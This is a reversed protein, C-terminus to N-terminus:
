RGQCRGDICADFGHSPYYYSGVFCMENTASEGFKVDNATPNNWDCQYSLGNTGDFTLVPDLTKLEPSGWSKEDLLQHSTDGPGSSAWVKVGTGLQHQHTTVGFVKMGPAGVQFKVGTSFTSMPAIDFQTSGWFAFNAKQYSSAESSKIGEFKVTASGQLPASGANIYHAEIRLLQHAAIEVGVGAPFGYDTHAKGAMVIPSAGSSILTNFPTCAFPTLNEQTGSWRYVILHHSGPALDVVVRTAIIDDTTDIKKLICVTKEEAPAIDIPGIGTTALVPM